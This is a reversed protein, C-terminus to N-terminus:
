VINEVYQRIDIPIEIQPQKSRTWVHCLPEFIFPAVIREAMIGVLSPFGESKDFMLSGCNACSERSTKNGSEATFTCVSLRGSIESQKSKFFAIKAYPSGTSEQCDKCHCFLQLIPHSVSQFQVAGCRCFGTIKSTM